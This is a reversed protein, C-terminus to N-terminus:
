LCQDGGLVLSQDQSHAQQRHDSPDSLCSIGRHTEEKVSSGLLSHKVYWGDLHSPASFVHHSWCSPVIYIYPPCVWTNSIFVYTIVYLYFHEIHPHVYKSMYIFHKCNYRSCLLTININTTGVKIIIIFMYVQPIYKYNNM